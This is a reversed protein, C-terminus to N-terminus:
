SEQLSGKGLIISGDLDLGDASAFSSFDEM